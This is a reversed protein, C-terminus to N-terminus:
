LRYLIGNVPYYAIEHISEKYTDYTPTLELMYNDFEVCFMPNYSLLLDSTVTLFYMEELVSVLM